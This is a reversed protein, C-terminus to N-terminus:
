SAQDDRRLLDHFAHAPVGLRRSLAEAYGRAIRVSEAGEDFTGTLDVAIRCGFLDGVSITGIEVHNVGPPNDLEEVAARVADLRAAMDVYVSVFADM